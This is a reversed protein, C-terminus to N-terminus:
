LPDHLLERLIEYSQNVFLQSFLGFLLGLELFSLTTARLSAILFSADRIAAVSGWLLNVNTKFAFLNVM